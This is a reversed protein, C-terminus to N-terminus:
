SVTWATTISQYKTSVPNLEKMRASMKTLFLRNAQTAETLSISDVAIDLM